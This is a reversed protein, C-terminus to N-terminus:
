LLKQLIKGIKNLSGQKKNMVAEVNLIYKDLNDITDSLAIVPTMISWKEMEKLILKSEITKLDLDIILADYKHRLEKLAQSGDDFHLVNIPKKVKELSEIVFETVTVNEIIVLVQHEQIVERAPTPTPEEIQEDHSEEVVPEPENVPELEPEPELDLKIKEEKFADKKIARKKSRKKKKRPKKKFLDTVRKVPNSLLSDHHKKKPAPEIEIEPENNKDQAKSKEPKKKKEAKKVQQEPEEELELEEEVPTELETSENEPELREEIVEETELPEIAEEVPKKPKEKPAIEPEQPTEEGEPISESEVTEEHQIERRREEITKPSRSKSAAPTNSALAYTVSNLYAAQVTTFKNSCKICVMTLNNKSVATGCDQCEFYPDSVSYYGPTGELAKEDLLENCRPCRLLVGDIYEERPGWYECDPHNIDEKCGVKTSGCRPCILVSMNAHGGCKPCLLVSGKEQKNIFKKSVLSELLRIIEADSYYNSFPEMNGMQAGKPTFKLNITNKEKKKMLEIFFSEEVTLDSSTQLANSDSSQQSQDSIM